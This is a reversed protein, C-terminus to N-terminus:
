ATRRWMYVALYPNMVDVADGALGDSAGNETNGSIAHNHFGDNEVPAASALALSANGRAANANSTGVSNSMDLVHDHSGDNDTALTGAGHKHTPLQAKTLTKTKSGGTEGVTDFDTDSENLGVLMRGQAIRSWTGGFLDAPDDTEFTMYVSGVPWPNNINRGTLRVTGDPRKDTFVM